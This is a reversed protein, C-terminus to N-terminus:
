ELEDKSVTRSSGDVFQVKLRGFPKATIVAEQGGVVLTDGVSYTSAPKEITVPEKVVNQLQDKLARLEALEKDVEEQKQKGLIVEALKELVGTTGDKENKGGMLRPVEENFESFIYQDLPDARRKGQGTSFYQTMSQVTKERQDAGKDVAVEVSRLIIAQVKRAAEKLSEPLPQMTFSQGNYAVVYPATENIRDTAGYEVENLLDGLKYTFPQITQFIQFAEDESFGVLPALHTFGWDEYSAVLQDVCERATKQRQVIPLVTSAYSTTAAAKEDVESFVINTFPILERCPIRRYYPSTDPQVHHEMGLPGSLDVDKFALYGYHIATDSAARPQQQIKPIQKIQNEM